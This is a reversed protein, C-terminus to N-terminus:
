KGNEYVATLIDVAVTVGKGNEGEGHVPQRHGARQKIRNGQTVSLIRQVTPSAQTM